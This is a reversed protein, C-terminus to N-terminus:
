SRPAGTAYDLDAQRALLEFRVASLNLEAATLSTRADLFEVQSIVGEDRKRGAIRFAARAAAARAEAVQLSAESTQLRDLAQQVELAIQQALQLRQTEIQRLALKAEREEARRAGGDFLTWNLLLSVTAYNRGRGFEYKEGQTGGDVALGLSPLRAARAIALRSEVSKVNGEFQGVDPRQTLALSRLQELDRATRALEGDIVADDLATDLAPSYNITSEPLPEVATLGSTPQTVAIAGWQVATKVGMPVNFGVGFDDEGPQIPNSVVAALFGALTADGAGVTNIVKVPATRASWAHDKTVAVMGDGGLSALVVDVGFANVERAAEIVDGITKLNRGVIFALEEANPKMVTNGMSVQGDGGIVVSSGRRVSLITTGRFQEM